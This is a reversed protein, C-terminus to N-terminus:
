VTSVRVSSVGDWPLIFDGIQVLSKNSFTHMTASSLVGSASEVAPGVWVDPLKGRYLTGDSEVVIGTESLVRSGDYANRGFVLSTSPPGGAAPGIGYAGLFAFVRTNSQNATVFNETNLYHSRLGTDPADSSDNSRFSVAWPNTIGAQNDSLADLFWIGRVKNNFQIVVRSGGGADDHWVHVVFDRATTATGGVGWNGFGTTSDTDLALVESSSTPRANVSGGTFPSSSRTVYINARSGRTNAAGRACEFLMELGMAANRLQIWPRGTTTTTWRIESFSTWNDGAGNFGSSFGVSAVVTWPNAGLTTLSDKIFLLVKKKANNADEDGGATTGDHVVFKNLAFRWTRSPSVAPTTM